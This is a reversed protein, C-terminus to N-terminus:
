RRKRKTITKIQAIIEPNKNDKTFFLSSSAINQFVFTYMNSQWM